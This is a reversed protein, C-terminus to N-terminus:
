SFQIQETNDSFTQVGFWLKTLRHHGALGTDNDKTLSKLNSYIEGNALVEDYIERILISDQEYSSTQAISSYSVLSAFLPALLFAIRNNM